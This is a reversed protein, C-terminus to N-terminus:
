YDSASAPTPELKEDLYQINPHYCEDFKIDLGFVYVFSGAFSHRSFHQHLISNPNFHSFDAIKAM